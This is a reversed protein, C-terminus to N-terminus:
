FGWVKWDCLFPLGHSPWIDFTVRLQKDCFQRWFFTRKCSWDFSPRFTCFFNASFREALVLSASKYCDCVKTRQIKIEKSWYYLIICKDCDTKFVEQVPRYFWDLIQINIILLLIITVIGNFLQIRIKRLTTIIHDERHFIHNSTFILYAFFLNM